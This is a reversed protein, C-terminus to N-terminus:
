CGALKQHLQYCQELFDKCMVIDNFVSEEVIMIHPFSTKLTEVFIGNGANKQIGSMDYIPTSGAGCSPSRAKVIYACMKCGYNKVLHQSTHNLTQTVNLTKEEVGLVQIGESTKVLQVPPRPVGLHAEAEPCIAQFNLWPALEQQILQHFKNGGDYRVNQGTLCASIGVVPQQERVQTLIVENNKM